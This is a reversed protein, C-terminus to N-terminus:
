LMVVSEKKLWGEKDKDISIKVWNDIEKEVNIKLGQHIRFLEVSNSNEDPSSRVVVEENLVLAYNGFYIRYQAFSFYGFIFLSLIPFISLIKIRKFFFSLSIILMLFSFSIFAWLLNDFINRGDRINGIWIWIPLVVKKDLKDKLNLKCIELNKKLDLDGPMFKLAKEYSYIAKVLNGQKYYSNGLNYWIKGGENGSAIINNYINIAESFKGDSYKTNAESFDQPVNIESGFAEITLVFLFLISTFIKNM